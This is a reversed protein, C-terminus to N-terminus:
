LNKPAHVEYIKRYPESKSAKLTRHKQTTVNLPKQANLNMSKTTYPAPNVPKQSTSNM